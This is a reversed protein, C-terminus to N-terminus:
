CSSQIGVVDAQCLGRSDNCSKIHSIFHPASFIQKQWWNNSVDQPNQFDLEYLSFKKMLLQIMAVLADEGTVKPSVEFILYKIRCSLLIEKLVNFVNPEYGEVDVKLLLIETWSGFAKSLEKVPDVFHICQTLSNDNGPRCHSIQDGIGIGGINGEANSLELHEGDAGGIAGNVVHLNQFKNMCKSAELLARVRNQPEFSITHYGLSSMYLSFYGINAGVDMMIRRGSPSGEQILSSDQHHIYDIVNQVHQDWVGHCKLFPSIMSDHQEPLVAMHFAPTIILEYDPIVHLRSSGLLELCQLRHSMLVYKNRSKNSIDFPTAPDYVQPRLSNQQKNSLILYTLGLILLLVVHVPKSMSHFSFQKQRVVM